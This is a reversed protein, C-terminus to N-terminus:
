FTQLVSETEGYPKTIKNNKNGIVFFVCLDSITIILKYFDKIFLKMM